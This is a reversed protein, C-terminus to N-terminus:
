RLANSVLEKPNHGFTQRFARSFHSPNSYGVASAAEIVACNEQLLLERAREMRKQRLYGFVTTNYRERFGKKLKFENIHAQRSVEKLSHDACLNAELYDAAARLADEDQDRLCPEPQPKQSLTTGDSALALLELTKAHVFLRETPTKGDLSAIESVLSQIRKSFYDKFFVAEVRQMCGFCAKKRHLLLDEQTALSQWIERDCDIWVLETEEEFSCSAQFGGLAIAFWQQAQVEQWGTDPLSIRIRGRLVFCIQSYSKLPWLQLNEPSDAKFRVYSTALGSQQEFRRSASMTQSASLHFPEPAKFPCSVM